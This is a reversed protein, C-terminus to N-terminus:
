SALVANLLWLTPMGAAIAVRPSGTRRVAVVAVAVAAVPAVMEPGGSRACAATVGGAALAAFASPVVFRSVREFGDSSGRRGALMVMSVRFLYTGAGVAVVVLWPTM